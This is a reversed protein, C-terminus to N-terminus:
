STEMKVWEAIMRHPPRDMGNIGISATGGAVGMCVCKTKIRGAQPEPTKRSFGYPLALAEKPHHHLQNIKCSNQPRECWQMDHYRVRQSVRTVWQIKLAQTRKCYSKEFFASISWFRCQLLNEVLKALYRWLSSSLCRRM